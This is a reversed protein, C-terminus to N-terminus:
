VAIYQGAPAAQQSAAETWASSDACLEPPGTGDTLAKTFRIPHSL